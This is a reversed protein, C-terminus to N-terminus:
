SIFTLYGDEERAAEAEFPAYAPLEAKDEIEWPYKYNTSFKVNAYYHYPNDSPNMRIRGVKQRPSATPLRGDEFEGVIHARAKVFTNEIVRHINGFKVNIIQKDKQPGWTCIENAIDHDRELIKIIATHSGSYDSIHRGVWARFIALGIDLAIDLKNRCDPHVHLLHREIRTIKDHFEKAHSTFQLHLQHEGIKASWEPDRIEPGGIKDVIGVAHIMAEQYIVKSQLTCAVKLFRIPDGAVLEYGDCSGGFIVNIVKDNYAPLLGHVDLFDMLAPIFFAAKHVETAPLDIRLGYILAFGIKYATIM